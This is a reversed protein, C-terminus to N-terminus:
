RNALEDKVQMNSKIANICTGIYSTHNLSTLLTVINM